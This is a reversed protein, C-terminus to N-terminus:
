DSYTGVLCRLIMFVVASLEPSANLLKKLIIIFDKMRKSKYMDMVSKTSMIPEKEQCYLALEGLIAKDSPIAASSRLNGYTANILNLLACARFRLYKCDLFAQLAEWDVCSVPTHTADPFCKIAYAVAHVSKGDNDVIGTIQDFDHIYACNSAQYQKGIKKAYTPTHMWSYALDMTCNILAHSHVWDDMAKFDGNSDDFVCHPRNSDASRVNLNKVATATTRNHVVARDVTFTGLNQCSKQVLDASGCISLSGIVASNAASLEVIKSHVNTDLSPSLVYYPVYLKDYKVEGAVIENRCQLLIRLAQHIDDIM